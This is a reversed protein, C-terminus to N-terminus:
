AARSLVQLASALNMATERAGQMMFAKNGLSISINVTDNKSSNAADAGVLGGIAFGRIPPSTGRNLNDFFNKGWKQVSAARIVYEGNSLLSPISDSTATGAGTVAGGDAMM